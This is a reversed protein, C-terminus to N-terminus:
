GAPDEFMTAAAVILLAASTAGPDQHGISRRGLRAARGKRALMPVTADRGVEAALAARHLAVGLDAHEALALDLAELAPALADFMTKDGAQPMGLQVIENLGARLAAAFVLEDLAHVQGAAQGMGRFFAGYLAGGAGGVGGTSTITGAVVDRLLTLVNPSPCDAMAAVAAAFGRNMNIGHDGDGIAADLETLQDKNAGISHTFKHMWRTLAAIDVTGM